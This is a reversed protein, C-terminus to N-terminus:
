PRNDRIHAPKLRPIQPSEPSRRVYVNICFADTCFSKPLLHNPLVTRYDRVSFKQRVKLNTTFCHLFANTDREM